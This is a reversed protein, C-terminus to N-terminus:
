KFYEAYVMVYHSGRANLETHACFFESHYINEYAWASGAIVIDLSATISVNKLVNSFYARKYFSAVAIFFKNNDVFTIDCIRCAKMIPSWLQNGKGTDNKLKIYSGAGYKRPLLLNIEDDISHGEGGISKVVRMLALRDVVNGANIGINTRANILRKFTGIAREMSRGSYAALPGHGRIMYGIHALYHQTPKMINKKLRKAQVETM